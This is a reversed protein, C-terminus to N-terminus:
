HNETTGRVFPLGVRLCDETVVLRGCSRDRQPEVLAKALLHGAEDLVPSGLVPFESGGM